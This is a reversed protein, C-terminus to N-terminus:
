RWAATPNTPLLKERAKESQDDDADMRGVSWDLVMHSSAKEDLSILKLLMELNNMRACVNLNGEM